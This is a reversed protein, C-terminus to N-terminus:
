AAGHRGQKADRPRRPQPHQGLPVGEGPCRCSYVILDGDRLALSLSKGFIFNYQALQGTRIKKQMTNGSLDVDVELKDGRLITQLEECYDNLAPM